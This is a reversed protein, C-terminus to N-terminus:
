AIPLSIVAPFHPKGAITRAPRFQSSVFLPFSTFSM